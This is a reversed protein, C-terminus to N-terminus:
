SNDDDEDEDPEDGEAKEAMIEFPNPQKTDKNKEQNEEIIAEAEELSLDKNYDM